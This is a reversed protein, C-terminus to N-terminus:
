RDRSASARLSDIMASAREVQQEMRDLKEALYAADQAGLRPGIRNRINGLSLRIVNLPQMLDHLLERPVPSSSHEM